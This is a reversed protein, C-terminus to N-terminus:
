HTRYLLERSTALCICIFLHMWIGFCQLLCWSFLFFVVLFCYQQMEGRTGFNRSVIGWILVHRLQINDWLSSHSDRGKATIQRTQQQRKGTNNNHTRHSTKTAASSRQVLRRGQPVTAREWRLLSNNSKTSEGGWGQVGEKERSIDSGEKQQRGTRRDRTEGVGGSHCKTERYYLDLTLIVHEGAFGGASWWVNWAKKWFDSCLSHVYNRLSYCQVWSM